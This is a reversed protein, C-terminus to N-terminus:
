AWRSRCEKGVRREESRKFKLNDNQIKIKSNQNQAATSPRMLPFIQTERVHRDMLFSFVRESFGHGSAPPMGYELAEVFESDAMQAEKDGADRLKQQMAFREAQDIPDNLESYGQGLESGSIIFHFRETVKPNERSVKALPSIIKPENILIAPGGIHKRCHKWLADILRGMNARPDIDAKLERLKDLIDSSQAQWIDIGTQKKIEEAYDILPWEGALDIDFDKIHFKQTGFTAEAAYQYCECLFKYMDKYDSYAWYAECQTYDQLHEASMGENRFIRGIEFTKEFGAVMLRKQWLEGASIRLYVDINLSNHHTAFPVADAGGTTNELVPTEVEMFGEAFMFDRISKWFKSRKVIIEAVDPNVLIDLYRRRYREEDDKLGYWTDPIPRLAKAIIRLSHVLLSHENKKTVYPNGYVELFDGIELFNELTRYVHQGLVNFQLVLQMKGTGDEIHLFIIKGHRRLSRVRGVVFFKKGDLNLFDKEVAALTLDRRVRAPYPELHQARLAQLKELRIEREPRESSTIAKKQKM